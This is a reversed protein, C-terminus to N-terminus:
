PKTQPPVQQTGPEGSTPSAPVTAGGANGTNPAMPAASADACTADNSSTEPGVATGQNTTTGPNAQTATNVAPEPTSAATPGTPGEAQPTDPAIVVCGPQSDIAAQGCFVQQTEGPGAVGFVGGTAGVGFAPVESGAIESVGADPVTTGSPAQQDSVAGARNPEQSVNPATTTGFEGANQLAGQCLNGDNTSIVFEPVATCDPQTTTTSPQAFTGGPANSPSQQVVGVGSGPQVQGAFVQTQPAGGFGIPATSISCVVGGTPPPPNLPTGQQEAGPTNASAALPLLAAFGAVIMGQSVRKVFTRM